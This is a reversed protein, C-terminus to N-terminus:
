SGIRKPSCPGRPLLTGTCLDFPERMIRRDSTVRVGCYDGLHTDALVTVGHDRRLAEEALRQVHYESGGPYPAYRHVVFLLRSM